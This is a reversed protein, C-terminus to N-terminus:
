TEGQFLCYCAFREWVSEPDCKERDEEAMARHDPCSNFCEGVSPRCGVFFKHDPTFITQPVKGAPRRGQESAFAPVALFVVLFMVSLKM